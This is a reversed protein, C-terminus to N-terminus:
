RVTVQFRAGQLREAGVDALVLFSYTDPPLAALPFTQKASTAPYLFSGRLTTSHQLAGGSGYVELKLAPRCARTGEGTVDVTVTGSQVRPNAFALRCEGTQGLHTVVQVAFRIKPSVTFGSPAAPAASRDEAEVLVVGWYTGAPAPTGSPVTITYAVAQTAQAPITVARQSLRIWGTNSRPQSGSPNFTTSGSADFAYDALSLTATQTTDSTNRITIAGQYTEGPAATRETLLAGTVTIQAAASPVTVLASVLVLFFAKILPAPVLRSM